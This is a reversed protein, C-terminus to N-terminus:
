NSQPLTGPLSRPSAFPLVEWVDFSSLLSKTIVSSSSVYRLRDSRAWGWYAVRSRCKRLSSVKEVNAAPIEWFHCHYSSTLMTVTHALPGASQTRDLNREITGEVECQLLPLGEISYGMHSPLSKCLSCRKGLVKCGEPERSAAADARKMLTPKRMWIM